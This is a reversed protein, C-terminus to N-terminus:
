AAEDTFLRQAAYLRMDAAVRDGQAVEALDGPVLDDAPILFSKGGRVVRASPASLRSLAALAREARYEQFFGLLGNLVVIAGIAISDPWHGLYGAAGSALLLVLLLSDTFQRVLLPGAPSRRPERMVNSGHERLRRSSEAPALGRVPDTGLQHLIVEREEAHWRNLM